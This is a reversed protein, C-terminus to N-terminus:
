REQFIPVVNVIQTETISAPVAGPIANCHLTFITQRTIPVSIIGIPGSSLLSSLTTTAIDDTVSCNATHKTNWFLRTPEGSRVLRPIAQLHGTMEIGSAGAAGVSSATFAEFGISYPLCAAAGTSCFHATDCTIYAEPQCSPPAAQFVTNDSCSYTTPCIPCGAESPTTASCSGDCSTVGSNRQGCSNPASWCSAGTQSPCTAPPPVPPNVISAGITAGNACSFQVFNGNADTSANWHGWGGFIWVNSAWAAMWSAASGFSTFEVADGAEGGCGRPCDLSVYSGDPFTYASAALPSTVLICLLILAARNVKIM